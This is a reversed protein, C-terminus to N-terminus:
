WYTSIFKIECFGKTTNKEKGKKIEKLLIILLSAFINYLFMIYEARASRPRFVRIIKCFMQM